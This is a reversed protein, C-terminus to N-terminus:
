WPVDQDNRLGPELPINFPLKDADQCAAQGKCSARSVGTNHLAIDCEQNGLHSSSAFLLKKYDPLEMVLVLLQVLKQSSPANSTIVELTM